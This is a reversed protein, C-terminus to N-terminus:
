TCLRFVQDEHTVQSSRTTLRCRFKGQLRHKGFQFAQEFVLNQKHVVAYTVLGFFKGRSLFLSFNDEQFVEAEVRFFVALKLTDCYICGTFLFFDLSEPLLKRAQSVQVDVIGESGSVSGVATHHTDVM